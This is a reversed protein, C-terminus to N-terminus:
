QDTTNQFNRAGSVQMFSMSCSGPFKHLNRTCTEPVLNKASLLRAVIWWYCWQEGGGVKFSPALIDLKTRGGLLCERNWFPAPIYARPRYSRSTLCTVCRYLPPATQTDLAAVPWTVEGGAGGGTRAVQAHEHAQQFPRQRRTLSLIYHV